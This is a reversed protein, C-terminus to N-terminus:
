QRFKFDVAAGEVDRRNENRLQLDMENTLLRGDLQFPEASTKPGFLSPLLPKAEAGQAVKGKAAAEQGPPQLKDVMEKPLTLDIKAPPVDNAIADAKKRSQSKAAARAKGKTAKAATKKSAQAPKGKAAGAKGPKATSATPSAPLAKPAVIPAGLEFAAPAAAQTAPVLGWLPVTLTLAFLAPKLHRM